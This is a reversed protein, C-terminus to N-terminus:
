RESLRGNPLRRRRDQPNEPNVYTGQGHPPETPSEAQDRAENEGIDASHERPSDQRDPFPENRFDRFYRPDRTVLPAIIGEESSQDIEEERQLSQDPHYVAAPPPPSPPNSPVMVMTSGSPPSTPGPPPRRPPRGDTSPSRRSTRRSTSHRHRRRSTNEPENNIVVKSVKRVCRDLEISLDLTEPLLNQQRVELAATKCSARAARVEINFAESRFPKIRSM